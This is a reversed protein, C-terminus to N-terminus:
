RAGKRSKAGLRARLGQLKAHLFDGTVDLLDTGLEAVVEMAQERLAATQTSRREKETVPLRTRCRGCTAVKSEPITPVENHAGCSPCLIWGRRQLFRTLEADYAKRREADSLTQYAEGIALFRAADASSSRDPHCERAWKRYASKVQEPAASQPIWLDRYYFKM